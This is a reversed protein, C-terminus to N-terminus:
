AVVVNVLRGPVYVLNKIKKNRTHLQVKPSSLAMEKVDNESISAPAELRDRLRGNVQVVLTITEEATMAPDWKPFTRNHISYPHGTREWLEEAVHPAIPALLLLFKEVCERWLAADVEGQNWAQSLHNSLEMMAAIATNFKFRDLDNHVKEITQHLKRRTQAPGAGKEVTAPLKSPDQQLLDWTRNMWRAIGNIGTDTWDGGQDWPGLFMLYARVVDAGLDEVYNDPNIVNGRSKSMKAGSAVITGQNFLRLFPEDFNLLGMDRLAKTFFRAYLLHMVAHEVGGTYQDVPLWQGVLTPDFPGKDERPSAFRFMYWSSDVFTDMTDTERRAEGDCTPCTTHVFGHNTALPSDGTPKFEADLPLLVPLSDSPVPVAGCDDCYVIPIPTGWYRQRSILWDRIRYSLMRGGWGKSEILDAISNIADPSAMGDFRGSNVMVGEGAFARGLEGETNGPPSIVTRVPLGHKQAFEYDRQDHAPVGMVSGTGYTTLVYDAIYLPVKEGSILNVAYTGLPVGTKEKDTALREIETQRRTKELYSQVQARQEPATLKEVLPHEPALAMFTVGYITDIRTTFTRLENEELGYHSIDFAIEVGESRGIWNRQMTLIKEPWDILGSFDLLEEAYDTIRFFWQQLARRTVVTDCRECCGNVVQENALVTQCSSCWVVPAEARYVLGKEYFKLFLWQNWRYYEPLCTIVERNWDYVPGMSRLQRRMNEINGMTWPNPHIGRSIAANEAPLGFADFGMPHLVNYGQMRRFRAHSDSPAMVYWHGIHLDGSPYPYMTLEHWKPRPDDDRTRYIGDKEWRDQWKRDIETAPFRIEVRRTTM